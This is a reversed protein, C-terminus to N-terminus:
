KEDDHEPDVHKKNWHQKEYQALQQQFSHKPQEMRERVGPWYRYALTFLLAFVISFTVIVASIM